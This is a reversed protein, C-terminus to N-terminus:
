RRVYLSVAGSRFPWRGVRKFLRSHRVVEDKLEDEPLPPADKSRVYDDVYWVRQVTRLRELLTARDDIDTGQLQRVQDATKDLSVDRLGAFAQPYAAMARRYVERHFIFADGPRRGAEIAAAMARLDDPRADPERVELHLPITLLLAATLAPFAGWLPLRRLGAAVLLALGPVCFIVYRLVYYPHALSVGLLLAPPLVAWAVGLLRLDIQGRPGTRRWLGLLAVALVPAILWNAGALLRLLTYVQEGDPATIWSIQEGSQPVSILAVPVVASVGQLAAIAWRGPVGRERWVSLVAVAHVPLLLLTFLHVWGVLTVSFAYAIWPWAQTRREVARVLLYTSVAAMAITISYQRAEQAYRSVLPSGAVLLGAWLGVWRDALRRGILATVGAAVGAGLVSPMRVAVAGTGFAETWLHMFLYYAGHVADIEGLMALLDGLSRGSASLTAAEDRWLTPADLRWLCVLVGLVAPIAPVLWGTSVSVTRSSSEPAAPPAVDLDIGM